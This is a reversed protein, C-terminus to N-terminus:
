PNIGRTSTRCREKNAYPSLAVVKHAQWEEDGQALDLAEAVFLLKM